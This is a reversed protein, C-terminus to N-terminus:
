RSRALWEQKPRRHGGALWARVDSHVSPEAAIATAPPKLRRVTGVKHPEVVSPQRFDWSFKEASATRKQNTELLPQSSRGLNARRRGDQAM